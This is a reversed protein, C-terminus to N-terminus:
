GGFFKGFLGKAQKGHEGKAGEVAYDKGKDILPAAKTNTVDQTIGTPAAAAAVAEGKKAVHFNRRRTPRTCWSNRRSGWLPASKWLRREVVISVDKTLDSPM